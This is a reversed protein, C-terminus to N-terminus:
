TVEWIFPLSGLDRAGEKKEVREEEKKEKKSRRL